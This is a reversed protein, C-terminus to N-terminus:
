IIDHRGIDILLIMRNDKHQWLIRIDMNVSCEFVDILRQVKKIRLSPHFPDAVLLKLKRVVTRQENDSLKILNKEFTKTYELKYM